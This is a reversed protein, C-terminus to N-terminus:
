WACSVVDEAGGVREVEGLRVGVDGGLLAGRRFGGRSREDDIALLRAEARPIGPERRGAAGAMDACCTSPLIRPRASLANGWSMLFSPNCCDALLELSESSAVWTVDSFSAGDGGAFGLESSPNLRKKEM